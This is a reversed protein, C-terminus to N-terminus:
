KEENRKKKQEKSVLRFVVHSRSSYENMNTRGIKRRDEGKQLLNLSEVSSNVIEESLNGIFIGKLITEHIKLNTNESLLLDTIIENYIEIYSCRISFDFKDKSEEIQKFLYDLSLPIIGPSDPTGQM